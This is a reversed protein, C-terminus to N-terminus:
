PLREATREAVVRLGVLKENTAAERTPLPNAATPATGFLDEAFGPNRFLLSASAAYEKEQIKSLVFAAGATVLVCLLILVIRRRTIAVWREIDFTQSQQPENSFTM